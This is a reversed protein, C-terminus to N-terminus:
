VMAAEETARNNALSLSGDETLTNNTLSPSSDEASINNALSVSTDVTGGNNVVGPIRDETVRSIEPNNQSYMLNFCVSRQCSEVLFHVFRRGISFGMCSVLVCVPLNDAYM